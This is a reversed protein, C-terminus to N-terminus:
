FSEFLLLFASLVGISLPKTLRASEPHVQRKVRIVLIPNLLLLVLVEQVVL